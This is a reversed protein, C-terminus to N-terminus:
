QEVGEPRRWFRGDTSPRWGMISLIERDKKNFVSADTGEILDPRNAATRRLAEDRRWRAIKGHDGSRLVDPVDLGRWTPPKTYMPAELVGAAHSLDWVTTAGAAAARATEGALDVVESTRYDVLSRLVVDVGTLDDLGHRIESGRLRAVGEVVYRDTPFDGDDVAIV